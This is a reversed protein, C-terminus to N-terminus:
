RPMLGEVVSFAPPCPALGAHLRTDTGAPARRGPKEQASHGPSSPSTALHTAGSLRGQAVQRPRRFPVDSWRETQM